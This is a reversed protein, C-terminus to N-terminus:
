FEDEISDALGIKALGENILCFVAFALFLLADSVRERLPLKPVTNM